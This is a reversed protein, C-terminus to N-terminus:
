VEAVVHPSTGSVTLYLNSYGVGGMFRHSASQGAAAGLVAIITGGSGNTRLIATAADAGALLQVSFLVGAGTDLAGTANAYISRNDGM